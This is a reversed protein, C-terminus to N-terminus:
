RYLENKRKSLNKQMFRDIINGFLIFLHEKYQEAINIALNNMFPSLVVVSNDKDQLLSELVSLHDENSIVNEFIFNDAKAVDALGEALSGNNEIIEWFFSESLFILDNKKSCSFLFLICLIIFVKKFSM